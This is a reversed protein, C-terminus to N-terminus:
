NELRSKNWNADMRNKRKKCCHQRQKRQHEEICTQEKCSKKLSRSETKLNEEIQTPRRRKTVTENKRRTQSLDRARRYLEWNGEREHNFVDYCFIRRRYVTVLMTEKDPQSKRRKSLNRHRTVRHEYINNNLFRRGSKSTM